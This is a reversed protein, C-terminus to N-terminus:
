PAPFVAIKPLIDPYTTPPSLSSIFGNTRSFITPLVKSDDNSVLIFITDDYPEEIIKLLKNAAEPRMKEPLWMLFIKFNEQYASLSARAIIDESETVYIAPRSNGAQIIENWKEPPMYSWETMMEKWCDALDKSILIGDRKIVPYIFHIDPNNLNQHQKCSPCVGCSDGNVHNQCHIYQALARALRFKGIGSIGSLMIAHPIKGADVISRLARITENHGAIESFKM